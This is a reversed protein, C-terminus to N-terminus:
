EEDVDEDENDDDEDDDMDELEEVEESDDVDNDDDEGDEDLEANEETEENQEEEDEEESEEEDEDGARPPAVFYPLKGRQWDNIMIKAVTSLCPEGNPLLKGKMKALKTMFDLPDEWDPVGYQRVLHEKKLRALMPPVFDTPEKLREARVVGKLVTETEDDGVDYVM